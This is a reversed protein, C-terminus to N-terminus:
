SLAARIFAGLQRISRGAQPVLPGFIQFVHFLGPWVVVQAPVGAANARQAFRISDDLLIEDEGVHILLPPLGGLDGYLPSVLPNAPDSDGMYQLRTYGDKAGSAALRGLIPDVKAKTRMSEGTGALDTVPSLCVAAAPLPEGRAKLALLLALTLNGGASDGAVVVQHPLVGAALLGRYAAVCDELGAPFPHEPALRYDVSFARVGAAAALRAVLARHTRPSCIIWAGGHIYLLAPGPAANPPTVWEGPVGGVEAPQVQVGRPVRSMWGSRTEIRQRIETIPTQDDGAWNQNRLLLRICTAAFSPM